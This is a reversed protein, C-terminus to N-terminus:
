QRTSAALQRKLDLVLTGYAALQNKLKTSAEEFKKNMYDLEDVSEQYRIRFVDLKDQTGRLRMRLKAKEKSNNVRDIRTNVEFKALKHSQEELERKLQMVQVDATSEPCSAELKQVRGLLYEREERVESLALQLTKIQEFVNQCKSNLEPNLIEPFMKRQEDSAKQENISPHFELHEKSCQKGENAKEELRTLWEEYDNCKKRCIELENRAESLEKSLLALETTHLKEKGEIVEVSAKEKSSWIAKEEEMSLLAETLQMLLEEKEESSTKLSTELKQGHFKSEELSTRLISVEEKLTSLESHSVHLEDSLTQLDFALIEARSTAENKEEYTMALQDELSAITAEMEFALVELKKHEEQMAHEVLASSGKARKRDFINSSTDVTSDRRRGIISERKSMDRELKVQQGQLRKIEREACSKEGELKTKDQIANRLKSETDKLKLKTKELDKRISEKEKAMSSSSLSSIERQLMQIQSHCESKEMEHEEKLESVSKASNEVELHLEEIKSRLESAQTYLVLKEDELEHIKNRLCSQVEEHSRIISKIKISNQSASPSVDLLLNPLFHLLEEVVSSISEIVHKSNEFELKIEQAEKILSMLWDSEETITQTSALTAHALTAEERAILLEEYLKECKEQAFLTQETALGFACDLNQQSSSKEMELLAIKEQLQKIVIVDPERLSSNGDPHSIATDNRAACESCKEDVVFDAEALKRALYDIQIDSITRHTEYKLLLNEYETQIDAMDNSEKPLNIKTSPVKRRSTVHLLARPDPLTCDDVAGDKCGKDQKCLETSEEKVLDEFPLLPGMTRNERRSKEVTKKEVVSSLEKLKERALNGPCWTDRRKAKRFIDNTEEKNACFVMSSLNEIRKNAQEQLRKEREAHARKEEELELAIRERELESKLLTNRLNLIEDEQHESHLGQLKGRLEEIEKKQRKLLAADTLIENVHACNTVRLARSAFQLSSKTEDAHIQALTINCIIATNANGGLAPQLIRTLKSDRYPVHGGQSEVGESLKKIVTGLTMLSKNIHSGEKLRVGEAGTKTARESGALDVLNMRFITHSRSSYVNMNTEGIHRHSEGFAMFELVQDASAVIEERLGAVFIGRQQIINFLDHVALPIVGLESSSGRMTHTKGSSTQGYAFVTGNFGRVAAAVIDGTRARYVDETKCDEGFVHDFEFKSPPNPIFISNGSIRWPTTKADEPSLPRPRVSVHIREM